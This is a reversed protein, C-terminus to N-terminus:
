DLGAEKCAQALRQAFEQRVKENQAM